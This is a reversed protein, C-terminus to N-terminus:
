NDDLAELERKREQGAETLDNLHFEVVYLTIAEAKWKHFFILPEMGGMKLGAETMYEFGEAIFDEPDKLLRTNERYPGRDLVITGMNLGYVRPSKSWFDVVQGQRFKKAHVMTWNRRTKRKRDMIVADTTKAFSILM